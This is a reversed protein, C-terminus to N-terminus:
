DVEEISTVLWRDDDLTLEVRTRATSSETPDGGVTGTVDVAVLLQARDDLLWETAVGDAPVTGTLTRREERIRRVLGATAEDYTEVFEPTGLARMADLDAEVRRHDVTFYTAAATRAALVARGGDTSRWGPTGIDPPRQAEPGSEGRRDRLQVAAAALVAVLLVVLLGVLLRPRPPRPADEV